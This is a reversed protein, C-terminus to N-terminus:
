PHIQELLGVSFGFVLIPVMSFTARRLLKVATMNALTTIAM